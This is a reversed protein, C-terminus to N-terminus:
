RGAKPAPASTPVVVSLGLMLWDQMGGRYYYMKNVPYGLKVLARIARPSQDCWPGNCFLLIDKAQSFDLGYSRVPAGNNSGQHATDTWNITTGNRVGLRGLAQGLAKPNKEEGTFHTFPINLSGPITGKVYWSEARADILIGVGKEVRNKLFELLELEGVTTVGPAAEMAHICFPPCKRSTKAFGGTLEHQENQIREILYTRGQVTIQVDPLFEAIRVDKAQAAGAAVLLATGILTACTNILSQRTM